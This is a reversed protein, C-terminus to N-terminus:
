PFQAIGLKKWDADFKEIGQDTLPHALSKEFVEVPLTAIDAGAEIAGHFHEVTRLSAALLETEYGYQDIMDRLHMVLAMGNQGNDDLRGVFPSIMSVGMKCMMLGQTLSFVLTINLRVQEQVLRNIIEYYQAHCPVKVVVNEALAAIAKAQKYVAEPEKETVEVSIEGDPLLSCIELVRKKPDGGEKSLHTPNTTVGDILDTLMWKKIAQINATDLFIKM